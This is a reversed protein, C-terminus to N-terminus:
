SLSWLGKSIFGDVYMGDLKEGNKIKRYKESQFNYQQQDAITELVIFVLMLFSIIYDYINLPNNSGQWASLIPLSFLFILGM